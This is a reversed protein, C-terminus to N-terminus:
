SARRNRWNDQRRIITEYQEFLKEDYKKKTRPDPPESNCKGLGPKPTQLKEVFEKMSEVGQVSPGRTQKFHEFADELKEFRMKEESKVFGFPNNKERSGKDGWGGELSMLSLIYKPDIDLEKALKEAMASYDDFFKDHKAENPPFRKGEAVQVDAAADGGDTKEDDSSPEASALQTEPSM